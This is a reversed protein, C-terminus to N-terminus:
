HFDVAGGDAAMEFAKRWMAYRDFFDGVTRSAVEAATQHEAFDKALKASVVPGIVGENDAFSIMEAFPGSLKAPDAEVAEWLDDASTYGVLRALWDRWASYGGYSGARFSLTEEARYVGPEIGAMRGPFHREMCDTIRVHTKWDTPCGAEDTQADPDLTLKRYATIDLGM